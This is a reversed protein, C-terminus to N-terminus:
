KGIKSMISNAEDWYIDLEVDAKLNLDWLSSKLYTFIIQENLELNEIFYCLEEYETKDLDKVKILLSKYICKAVSYLDPNLETIGLGYKERDKRSLLKNTIPIASKNRMRKLLALM